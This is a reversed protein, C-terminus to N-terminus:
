KVIQAEKLIADPFNLGLLRMSSENIVLTPNRELKVPVQAVPKEKLLVDTVSEALMQGQRIQDIFLDAVAGKKACGSFYSFVPTKTAMGEGVIATVNSFPLKTTSIVFLDVKGRLKKMEEIMETVNAAIVPHYAIGLKKCQARTGEDDVATGPHGKELLLAVSKVNPFLGTLIKFRTEFPVFHTVGTIQGEPTNLNKVAGLEAPNNCAGVFVPVKPDVTALFQAGTSRLFVIGDMTSEFEHFVKGAEAIDKLNRRLTIKTEPATEKLKASLGLFVDDPALSQGEWLVGIRKEVAEAGIPFGMGISAFLGLCFLLSFKKM